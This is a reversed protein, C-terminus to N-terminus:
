HGKHKKNEDDSKKKGENGSKAADGVAMVPSLMAAGFFALLAFCTYKKMILIEM